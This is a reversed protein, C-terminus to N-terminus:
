IPGEERKAIVPPGACGRDWDQRGTLFGLLDAMLGQAVLWTGPEVRLMGAVSQIHPSPVLDARGDRVMALVSEPTAELHFQMGVVSAGLQFAENECYESRALRTAGPPLDFTEGHWQFVTTEPPFVFGGPDAPPTGQVATWGIETVSHRFVRAGMAGAILQAGLCIGLVPKGAAVATRIFRKEGALWPFEAEDHISMPGGMVVLLDIAGLDPLTDSEFFRTGTIRYGASRLWAEINGLGEGATHQLYHARV